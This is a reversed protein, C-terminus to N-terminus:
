KGEGAEGVDLLEEVQALTTDDKIVRKLWVHLPMEGWRAAKDALYAVPSHPETRRFFEAVRRLQALAEKRSNLPGNASAVPLPGAAALATEASSDSLPTMAEEQTLLLGADRAFRLVMSNLHSLQDRTASFSPGDIGLRADIAAELSKLAAQCDPVAEILERYVELPTARRAAELVGLAPLGDNSTAQDDPNNQRSRATDFHIQGFKGQASHVIPIAKLWTISHTLLWSLNGIRQEYDGDDAAPYLADWYHDCLGAVVRYGLALGRFGQTRSASEAFWVALQLDKSRGQLLKASQEFAAPWDASKLDTVWEGQELTPDDNRRAEQIRDYEPSFSLDEGCPRAESIPALLDELSPM